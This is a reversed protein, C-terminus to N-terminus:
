TMSASLWAASHRCRLAVVKAGGIIAMASAALEKAESRHGDRTQWGRPGGRIGMM